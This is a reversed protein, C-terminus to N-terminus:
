SMFNADVSLSESSAISIPLIKLSDTCAMQNPGPNLQPALFVNFDASDADWLTESVPIVRRQKSLASKIVIETATSQVQSEM